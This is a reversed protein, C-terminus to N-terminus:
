QVDGGMKPAKPKKHFLKKFFRAVADWSFEKDGMIGKRFFLVVIMLIVSFVVMRFGSKLLPVQFSGIFQAQDLPRLWWERAAIVLIASIISGTVSGMGGIVVILLIFYTVAITFTTSSM